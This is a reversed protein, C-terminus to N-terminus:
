RPAAARRLRDNIAEGLGRAAGEGADGDPVPAIAIRRAGRADLARLFSFLNAAAEVLDGTPSLDLRLATAFGALQGQFDLAVEGALVERAMLRVATVPAYHSALMGPASINLAGASGAYPAGLPGTIAEIRHRALAGARLLLPTPGTLAVITSELGHRCPGGDIALAVSGGPDVGPDLGPDLCAEVTTPSLFGSRNASPAAIPGGFEALVAQMMPHAPVRVAATELGALALPSIGSDPRLPAVLTLPGPWFADALRLAVPPLVLLREAEARSAVHVILPNFRPRGKAAYISAIARGARADAGLGYVTETPLVVLLGARLADAARTIAGEGPPLILM